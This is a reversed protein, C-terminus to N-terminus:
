EKEKLEKYQIEIGKRIVESKSVNNKQSVFELQKNTEENIRFHVLKNIPDDKIKQGKMPSLIGDGKM